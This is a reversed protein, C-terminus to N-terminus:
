PGFEIQHGLVYSMLELFTEKDEGMIDFFLIDIENSRYTLSVIFLENIHSKLAIKFDPYISGQMEGREFAEKLRSYITALDFLRSSKLLVKVVSDVVVTVEEGADKKESQQALLIHFFAIREKGFKNILKTSSDLSKNVFSLALQGYEPKTNL